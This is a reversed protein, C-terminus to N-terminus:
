IVVSINVSNNRSQAHCSASGCCSVDLHSPLFSLAQLSECYALFGLLYITVLYMSDSVIMGWLVRLLAEFLASFHHMAEAM